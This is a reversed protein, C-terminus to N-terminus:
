LAGKYLEEYVPRNRLGAPKAPQTPPTPWAQGQPDSQSPLRYLNWQQGGRGSGLGECGGGNGPPQRATESTTKTNEWQKRVTKEHSFPPSFLSFVILFCTKEHFVRKRTLFRTKEHFVHKRTTKESLFCRKRLSFVTNEQSFM